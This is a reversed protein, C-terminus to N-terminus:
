YSLYDNIQGKCKEYFKLAIYLIILTFIVPMLFFIGFGADKYVFGYYGKLIVIRYFLMLGVFPNYMYLWFLPKPLTEKVLYISYFVPTMYFLLTLAHDVIYKIDRFRLYITSFILALSFALTLHIIMVVPLFIIFESSGQLMFSSIVIVIILVPLFNLANVLVKSLPIFYYPFRPERLLNKNSILSDVSGCVSDQLVGWSFIASLLYLIFPAELTKVKLLFSFIFYLIAVTVLPSLIAWFFGLGLRAYRLKLDRFVLEWLLNRRLVLEKFLKLM